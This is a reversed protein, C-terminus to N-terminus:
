KKNLVAQLRPSPSVRISEKGKRTVEFLGSAELASLAHRRTARTKVGAREAFTATVSAAQGSSVMYHWIVWLGLPWGASPLRAESFMGVCEMQIHLYAAGRKRAAGKKRRRVAEIGDIVVTEEVFDLALDNNM